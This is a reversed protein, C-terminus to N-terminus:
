GVVFDMQAERWNGGIGGTAYYGRGGTTHARRPVVVRPNSDM